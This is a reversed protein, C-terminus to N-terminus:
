SEPPEPYCCPDKGAQYGRWGLREQEGTPGASLKGAVSVHVGVKPFISASIVRLLWCQACSSHGATGSQSSTGSCTKLVCETEVAAAM